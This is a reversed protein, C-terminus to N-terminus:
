TQDFHKISMIQRLLLEHQPFNSLFTNVDFFTLKTMNQICLHVSRLSQSDVLCERHFLNPVTLVLTKNHLLAVVSKTM